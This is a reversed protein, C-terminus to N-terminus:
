SVRKAPKIEAPEDAYEHLKFIYHGGRHSQEWTLHWLVWNRKMARIISENGSWGATSINYLYEKEEFDDDVCEGERWGWHHFYWLGEIFKFWGKIDNSPWIEIIELAANSPYGDDDLLDDQMLKDIRKRKEALEEEYRKLAAERDYKM